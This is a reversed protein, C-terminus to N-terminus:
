LEDIEKHLNLWDAAKAREMANPNENLPNPVGKLRTIVKYYIKEIWTSDYGEKKADKQAIALNKSKIICRMAFIISQPVSKSAEWIDRKLEVGIPFSTKKIKADIKNKSTGFISKEIIGIDEQNLTKYPRIVKLVSIYANIDLGIGLVQCDSKALGAEVALGITSNNLKLNNKIDWVKYVFRLACGWYVNNIISKPEDVKKVSYLCIDSAFVRSDFDFQNSFINAFQLSISSTINLSSELTNFSSFENDSNTLRTIEANNDPFLNKISFLEQKNESNIIIRPSVPIYM